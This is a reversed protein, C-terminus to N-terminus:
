SASAGPKARSNFLRNGDLSTEDVEIGTGEIIEAGDIKEIVDKPAMAGPYGYDGTMIKWVKFRYVTVSKALPAMQDLTEEVALAARIKAEALSDRWHPIPPSYGDDGYRAHIQWRGRTQPMLTLRVGRYEATVVRGESETWAITDALRRAARRERRLLELIVQMEGSVRAEGSAMRQISRLIADFKRRDGIAQMQVALRRQTIGLEEFAERFSAVAEEPTQEKDGFLFDLEDEM